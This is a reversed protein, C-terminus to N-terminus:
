QDGLAMSAQWGHSSPSRWWKINLGLKVAKSGLFYPPTPGGCPARLDKISQSLFVHRMAGVTRSTAPSAAAKALFWHETSLELLLLHLGQQNEVTPVQCPVALASSPYLFFQLARTVCLEPPTWSHPAPFSGSFSDSCVKPKISLDFSPDQLCEECFSCNFSCDAQLLCSSHSEKTMVFGM